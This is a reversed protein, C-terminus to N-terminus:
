ARGREKKGRKVEATARERETKLVEIATSNVGGEDAGRPAREAM